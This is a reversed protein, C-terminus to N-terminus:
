DAHTAGNQVKLGELAEVLMSSQSSDVVMLMRDHMDTVHEVLAGSSIACKMIDAILGEEDRMNVAYVIVVHRGSNLAFEIGMAAFVRGIPEAQAEDFLFSLGTPTLKLFDISFGAQAVAELVALRGQALQSGLGLVHAQALGSRIEVRGIGRQKEFETERALPEPRDLNQGYEQEELGEPEGSM